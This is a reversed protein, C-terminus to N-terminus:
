PTYVPQARAPCFRNTGRRGDPRVLESGEGTDRLVGRAELTLLLVTAQAYGCDLETALHSPAIGSWSPGLQRWLQRAVRQARNIAAETPACRALLERTEDAQAAVFEPDSYWAAYAPTGLESARWVRFQRRRMEQRDV